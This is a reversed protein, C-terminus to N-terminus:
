GPDPWRRRWSGTSPYRAVPMRRSSCARDRQRDHQEHRQGRSERSASSARAAVHEGSSRRAPPKASTHHRVCGRMEETSRQRQEEPARTTPPQNGSVAMATNEALKATSASPQDPRAAQHDASHARPRGSATRSGRAVDAAPDGRHHEGHRREPRCRRGAEGPSRRRAPRRAWSSSSSRSSNASSASRCSRARIAALQVVDDAVRDAHHHDLRRGPLPEDVGVGVAGPLRERRDGLGGPLALLVQLPEDLEEAAALSTPPGSRDSTSSTTARAPRLPRSTVQRKSPSRSPTGSGTACRAKRTTCSLRVLASRYAGPAATLMRMLTSSVPRRRSTRTSFAPAGCVDATVPVPRPRTPRRSRM